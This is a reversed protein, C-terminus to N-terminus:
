GVRSLIKSPGLRPKSNAPQASCDGNSHWPRPGGQVKAGGQSAGGRPPPCMLCFTARLNLNTRRKLRPRSPFQSVPTLSFRFLLPREGEKAGSSCLGPSAVPTAPKGVRGEGSVFVFSCFVFSCCVFSCFVFSCFVFSCFVFSCFVFSCFVFSCFVFSCFVFSCFVFSCFVFFVFFM